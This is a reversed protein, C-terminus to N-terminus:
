LRATVDFIERRQGNTLKKTFQFRKLRWWADLLDSLVNSAANWPHEKSESHTVRHAMISLARAQESHDVAERAHNSAVKLEDIVVLRTARPFQVGLGECFRVHFERGM